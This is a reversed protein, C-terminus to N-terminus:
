LHTSFKLHIHQTDDYRKRKIPIAWDVRIPAFRTVWILGAGLSARISKDDYFESKSYKSKSNLKLGWVSGMDAFVAGTLSFEEPLGLPFNLETTLAYFDQGGLGEDSRKDRPGIGGSAFGRLSYDGLNFRDSIRVTKGGVGRIDGASGSLKLTLKNNIFSKFYKGDLEHKLYKNNGGIGAYEQTGSVIYGNKPIVRSDTQDYAITHGISSTTFKGMQEVLFRSSSEPPGSLDDRKITYEIQHSLDEYIDYGFSTTLGLSKLTYNQETEGWGGSRGSYNNFANFGLSLDKDLFRPETIGLYYNTNKKGASIGASLYRGTGVLNRELFSVRGFLGGATGYGVDLGIASTSKEQVEIDINYKDRQNTPVINTSVREFYDLNRLNQEGKVIYARNFLDGEAIKFERRIVRDETKLNGDINIQGIFIKDAKDILFSVDALRTSVSKNGLVPEVSVQPYGLSALRETIKEAITDLAKMNFVQGSEINILKEILKDDIAALKNDIKINGFKYKEGEEVSYTIEFNEKTPSLEAVASIVRCDIFGISQYFEKLLEKDYDIRDPDYTDNTELFSFWRSEKTLIVTKLESDRYNENGIFYIRRISTKPGEAIEFIIKVRNNELQEIVPVVSVSFRGSRKYMEKIKEVDTQISAKSLSEGAVTLLEKSIVSSKIKSNGKFDIKSIFPTETVRVVLNGSIFKMTINDFLSTHYLSKLSENQKQLSYEDGVKLKLYNEITSREVRKGGEIIIRNIRESAFIASNCFITTTM